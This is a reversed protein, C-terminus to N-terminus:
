IARYWGNASHFLENWSRPQVRTMERRNEAATLGPPAPTPAACSIADSIFDGGGISESRESGSEGSFGTAGLANKHEFIRSSRVRVRATPATQPIKLTRVRLPSSRATAM